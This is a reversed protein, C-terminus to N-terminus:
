KKLHCSGNRVNSIFTFNIKLGRKIVNYIGIELRKPTIEIKPILYEELM